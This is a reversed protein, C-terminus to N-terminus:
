SGPATFSSSRRRARRLWATLAAVLACFGGLLGGGGAASCGCAWAPLRLLEHPEAGPERTGADYPAIPSTASTADPPDSADCGSLTACLQAFAAGGCESAGAEAACAIPARIGDVSLAPEFHAGDDTSRAAFFGASRDACAWLTGGTAALCQLPLDSKHEFALTARTAVLLGDEPGGAYIKAGDSSLAFGLMPGALELAVSYTRGADRTALLRSRGQTRVYVRDADAPDVAAVHAATETTPDIPV